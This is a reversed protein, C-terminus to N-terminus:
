WRAREDKAGVVRVIAKVYNSEPFERRFSVKFSTSESAPLRFNYDEREGVDTRKSGADLFDVHFQVEKWSVKSTNTITGIVAVTPGSKTDGFVIHSDALVIQDKFHEYKEGTDFISGIIVFMVLMPVLAVVIHLGPHYLIMSRRDQFQHCCPCKRAQQPIEMCCMKCTKTAGSVNM